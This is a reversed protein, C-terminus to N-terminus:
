YFINESSSIIKAFFKMSDFLNNFDSVVLDRGVLNTTLSISFDISYIQNIIGNFYKAIVMMM